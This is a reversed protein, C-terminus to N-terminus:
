TSKIRLKCTKRVGEDLINQNLLFNRCFMVSVTSGSFADVLVLRYVGERGM